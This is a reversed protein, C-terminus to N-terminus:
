KKLVNIIRTLSKHLRIEYRELIKFKTKGIIKDIDVFHPSAMCLIGNDKLNDKASLLFEYYLKSLEEGKTSTSIGYPPDTVIADVKEKLKIKRADEQFVKFDKIGFYKLNEIAGKVMKKDIDCGIVKIGIMGAEILVGGAGCFPDLIKEGKKVRALNVMCRAIKPDLSSPHFFPRKHPKAINFHKKNIKGVRIGFFVKSDNFVVRVFSEPNELNVKSSSLRDIIGGIKVEMERSSIESNIRKVRVAFTQGLISDWDVKLIKDKLNEINTMFLLKSVEHAYALRNVLIEGVDEDSSVVMIGDKQYKVNYNNCEVDLVAKVESYPIKPHERSLILLFEM